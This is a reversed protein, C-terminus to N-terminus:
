SIPQPTGGAPFFIHFESLLFTEYVRLMGVWNAMNNVSLLPKSNM